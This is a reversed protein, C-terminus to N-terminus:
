KQELGSGFVKESAKRIFKEHGTYLKLEGFEKPAIFRIEQGENCKIRQIGDYYDWFITRQVETGQETIYTDRALFRLESSNQKYSTEERLERAAAKKLDKDKKVEVAGGVAGWTDPGLIRPKNDRHQALVSGDYNVLIVAVFQRM